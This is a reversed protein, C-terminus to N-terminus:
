VGDQTELARNDAIYRPRSAIGYIGLHLKLAFLDDEDICSPYPSAPTNARTDLLVAHQTCTTGNIATVHRQEQDIRALSQRGLVCVNGALNLVFGLTHHHNDILPIKGLCLSAGRTLPIDRLGVFFNFAGLAIALNDRLAELKNGISRNNKSRCFRTIM